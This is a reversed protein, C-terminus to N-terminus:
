SGVGFANAMAAVARKVNSPQTRASPPKKKKPHKKSKTKSGSLWSMCVSASRLHAPPTFSTLLTGTSATWVRVRGDATVAAFRGLTRDFKCLVARTGIEM